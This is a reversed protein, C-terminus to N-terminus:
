HEYRHVQKRERAELVRKALELAFLVIIGLVFGFFSFSGLTLPPQGDALTTPGMVIAYLSGAMLGLILYVMKSRSRQLARRIFSISLAIGTLIGCGLVFLGPFAALNLHLFASIASITPLYVGAILLITSGSIGPLVMATIAVAGSAFVYLYQPLSLALMDIQALGGTLDRALSLTIVLLAGAFAFPWNRGHGEVVAREESIIFPISAVTLGLFLSSMFYINAEFLRSLLLVCSAMGVVWGVGLNALYRLAMLRARHDRGWLAHLAGIFRDYFGLIFAITGGSVGPVSDALSMCFGNFANHFTM